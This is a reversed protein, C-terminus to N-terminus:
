DPMSASLKEWDVYLRAITKQLDDYQKSHDMMERTTKKTFGPSAMEAELEKMQKEAKEIQVEVKRIAERHGREGASRKAREEAELRKQEKTKYGATTSPSVVKEERATKEVPQSIAPKWVREYFDLYGDMYTKMVKNHIFVVKNCVQDLFYRDHSIIILTGDFDQLAEMLLEKSEMDLHNTPEDMIILNHQNVLLKALAVRAKEGGSLVGINKFVDDGEFLFCGLLNRVKPRFAAPSEALVEDIITNRLNLEEVQHQAYFGVKVQSGIKLEGETVTERGLIMKVLTSKGSGNLGALAVRDGREVMLDANEFLCNSGFRKGLHKGEVVTRGSRPAEPFEFHIRKEGSALQIKDIKEVQKIRSQVQRAKSAKFRFREIFRNLQALQRQQNAYQAMLQEERAVKQAEYATYNGAYETLKGNDLELVRGVIADLFTRDHSVLILAGSYSKLHNELWDLTELDLHNTPEDLLLYDPEACLLRAMAMRMRWGGSFERVPRSFDAVSFGLGMLISEARSKLTFGDSQEFRQQLTGYHHLVDDLDPDGAASLRAIEHELERLQGEISLVSQFADLVSDLLSRDGAEVSFDQALYGLEINKARHVEGSDPQVEGLIIKMLTSKGRGNAGVIAIRDKVNIQTSVGDFVVQHHFQLKIGSLTIM